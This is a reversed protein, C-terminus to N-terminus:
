QGLKEIQIRQMDLEDVHGFTDYVTDALDISEKDTLTWAVLDNRRAELEAAGTLGADVTKVYAHAVHAPTIRRDAAVGLRLAIVAIAWSQTKDTCVDVRVARLHGTEDPVVRRRGAAFDEFHETRMRTFKGRVLRLIVVRARCLDVGERLHASYQMLERRHRDRQATLLDELLEREFRHEEPDFEIGELEPLGQRILAESMENGTHEGGIAANLREGSRQRKVTVGTFHGIDSTNWKVSAPISFEIWLPGRYPAWLCSDADTIEDIKDILETESAASILALSCDAYRVLYITM